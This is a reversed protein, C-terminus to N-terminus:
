NQNAPPENEATSVETQTNMEKEKQDENEKNVEEKKDDNAETIEEEDKQDLDESPSRSEDKRPRGRRGRRPTEQRPTRKQLPPPIPDGRTQSRTRRRQSETGEDSHGLEKLLAEGEKATKAMTSLRKMAVKSSDRVARTGAKTEELNEQGLYDKAMKTTEVVTNDKTLKVKKITPEDVANTSIMNEGGHDGKKNSDKIANESDKPTIQISSERQSDAKMESM